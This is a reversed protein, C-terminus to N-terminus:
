KYEEILKNLRSKLIKPLDKHCHECTKFHACQMHINDTFKLLNYEFSKMHKYLDRFILKTPNHRDLDVVVEM